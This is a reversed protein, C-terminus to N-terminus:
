AAPRALDARHARTRARRELRIHGRSVLLGSGRPLDLHPLGAPPDREAPRPRRRPGPRRHGRTRNALAEALRRLRSSAAAALEPSGEVSPAMRSLAARVVVLNQDRREGSRTALIELYQLWLRVADARVAPETAEEVIRAYIDCYVALAEPGREHRNYYHFDGTARRHVDALTQPWSAYRHHVERLLEETGRRIGYWGSSIDLLVLHESPIVM